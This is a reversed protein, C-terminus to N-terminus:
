AAGDGDAMPLSVDVTGTVHDGRSNAGRVTVEVLGRGGDASPDSCARSRARDPDHHRGPLQARGPPDGGNRLTAAPGAWDTVFRGVLGNTTLINM